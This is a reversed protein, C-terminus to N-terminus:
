QGPDADGQRRAKLTETVRANIAATIDAMHFTGAIRGDVTDLQRESPAVDLAPNLERARRVFDENPIDLILETVPEMDKLTCRPAGFWTPDLVRARKRRVMFVAYLAGLALSLGTALPPGWAASTFSAPALVAALVV